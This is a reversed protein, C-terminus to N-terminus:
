AVLLGLGWFAIGWFCTGCPHPLLQWEKVFAGITDRRLTATCLCRTNKLKVSFANRKDRLFWKHFVIDRASM